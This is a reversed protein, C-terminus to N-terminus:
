AGHLEEYLESPSILLLMRAFESDQDSVDDKRLQAIKQDRWTQGYIAVPLSIAALADFQDQTMSLFAKLMDTDYVIRCAHDSIDHNDTTALYNSILDADDGAYFTPAGDPPCLSLELVDRLNSM